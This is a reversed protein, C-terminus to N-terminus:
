SLVTGKNFQFGRLLDETKMPQKGERQLRNIRAAKGNGLAVSLYKEGEIIEGASGIGETLIADFVKFREKNYVFYTAPYPSFARIKHLLKEPEMRFDLRCEEKRLKEAYTVKEEDQKEPVIDDLRRLTQILLKAGVESLIDHLEGGTMKDTISVAQRSLVDGADLAAAMQMISVGSEADGAEIARQIPAAGRWRPLLSAHVNVCGKPFLDLVSQPLILGYAAVVALDAGLSQLYEQEASDKLTKPTRVELGRKEAFIHVPTKNVKKGRGSEKPARTYVATVEHEATLASLVPVSFDPTGMFVIKM